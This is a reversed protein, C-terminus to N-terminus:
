GDMIMADLTTEGAEDPDSGWGVSGDCREMECESCGAEVADVATHNGSSIVTWAPCQFYLPLTNTYVFFLAM